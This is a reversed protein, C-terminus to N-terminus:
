PRSPSVAMMQSSFCSKGLGTRGSTKKRCSARYNRWFRIEDVVAIWGCYIVIGGAALTIAEM